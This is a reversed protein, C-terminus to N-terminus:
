DEGYFLSAVSSLVGGFGCIKVNGFVTVNCLTNYPMIMMASENNSIVIEITHVHPTVTFSVSYSLNDKSLIGKLRILVSINEEEFSPETIVLEPDSLFM